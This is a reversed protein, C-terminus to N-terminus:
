LVDDLHYYGIRFPEGDAAAKNHAPSHCAVTDSTNRSVCALSEPLHPIRRRQLALPRQLPVLVVHAHQRHTRPVHERPGPVLGDPDPVDVGQLADLHPACAAQRDSMLTVCVGVLNGAGQLVLSTKQKCRSSRQQMVSTSTSQEGLVHLGALMM